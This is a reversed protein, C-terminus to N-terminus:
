VGKEVAIVFVRLVISVTARGRVVYVASSLVVKTIVVVVTSIGGLKVPM